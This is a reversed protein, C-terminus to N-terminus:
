STRSACSRKGFIWKWGSRSCAPRASCVAPQHPGKRATAAPPAARRETPTKVSMSSVSVVSPAIVGSASAASASRFAAPRCTTAIVPRGTPQLSGKARAQGTSAITASFPATASRAAAGVAAEVLAVLLVGGRARAVERAHLRHEARMSRSIGPARRAVSEAPRSHSMAISWLSNVCSSSACIAATTASIRLSPMCAVTLLM